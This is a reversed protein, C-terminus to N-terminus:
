GGAAVRCTTDHPLTRLDRPVGGPPAVVRPVNPTQWARALYLQLQRQLAGSSSAIKPTQVHRDPGASGVAALWWGAGLLVLGIVGVVIGARPSRMPLSYGSPRAAGCAPVRAADPVDHSGAHRRSLLGPVREYLRLVRPPAQGLDDRPLEGPLGPRAAPSGVAEAHARATVVVR